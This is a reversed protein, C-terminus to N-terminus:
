NGIIKTIRRVSDDLRGYINVAVKHLDDYQNQLDDITQNLRVQDDQLQKNENTILTLHQKERENHAKEVTKQQIGRDLRDLAAHIKGLAVTLPSATQTDSM